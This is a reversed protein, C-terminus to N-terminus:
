SGNAQQCDKCVTKGNMKVIIWAGQIIQNEISEATYPSGGGRGSSFYCNYINSVTSNKMMYLHSFAGDTKTRFLLNNFKGTMHKTRKMM